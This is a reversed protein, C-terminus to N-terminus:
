AAPRNRAAKSFDKLADKGIWRATPDPSEALRKAAAQAAAQLRPSRRRGIARLAWSVGKKVFNRDDGAEREILALGELFQADGTERDHLALSALLAFGARKAYEDRRGAWLAVKKWAHPSRDFLAFCLTDCIAWNDFDRCWRDMQASTLRDPEGVYAALTRAEYWGTEWLAEALAQNRGLHRALQQINGMSVGFAHDSPIAYRAMGELTAKTAHRKLWAVAADAQEDISQVAPIPAPSARKMPPAPPLAKTRGRTSTRAM